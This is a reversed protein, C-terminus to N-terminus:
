QAIVMALVIWSINLKQKRKRKKFGEIFFGKKLVTNKDFSHGESYSPLLYLSSIYGCMDTSEVHNQVATIFWHTAAVCCIQAVSM